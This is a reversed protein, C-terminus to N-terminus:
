QERRKKYGRKIKSAKQKQTEVHMEKAEEHSPHRLTLKEIYSRIRPQTTNLKQEQVHIRAHSNRHAICDTSIFTEMAASLYRM